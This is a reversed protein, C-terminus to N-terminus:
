PGAGAARPTDPNFRYGIGRVTLIYRPHAPDAEIKRRLKGVHVDVVRDVVIEGQTKIHGLLAQRSLALGPRRMLAELLRFELPTLMLERGARRVQHAAPDLELEGGRLIMRPASARPQVRRLIAKVREVLERPSFPKVVYDDTGLAYGLLRDLEEARATLMLIPVDSAARLERCVQWGDLGPLMLDLVVLGPPHRRALDLGSVGDFATEVRFGDRKLYTAVLAAIHRDDEIVLILPHADPM